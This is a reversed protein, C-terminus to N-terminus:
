FNYTAQAGTQVSIPTVGDYTKVTNTRGAIAPNPINFCVNPTDGTLVSLNNYKLDYGYVSTLLTKLSDGYNSGIWQYLELLMTRFQLLLKTNIPKFQEAIMLFQESEKEDMAIVETLMNLNILIDEGQVDVSSLNLGLINIAIFEFVSPTGSYKILTPTYKMLKRVQNLSFDAPLQINYMSALNTLFELPMTNIDHMTYLDDIYHEVENFGVNLLELFKFLHQSNDMERYVAPLKSYLDM